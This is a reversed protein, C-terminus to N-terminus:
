SNSVYGEYKADAKERQDAIRDDIAFSDRFFDGNGGGRIQIEGNFIQDGLILFRRSIM